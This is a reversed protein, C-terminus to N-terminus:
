GPGGPGAGPVPPPVPGEPISPINPNAEIGQSVQLNFQLQNGTRAAASDQASKLLQVSLTDLLPVSQQGKALTPDKPSIAATMFQHFRDPSLNTVFNQMMNSSAIYNVFADPNSNFANEINGSIVPPRKGAQEREILNAIVMKSVIVGAQQRDEMTFSAKTALSPSNGVPDLATALDAYLRSLPSVESASRNQALGSRMDYHRYMLAQLYGLANNDGGPRVVGGTANNDLRQFSNEENVQKSFAERNAERQDMVEKARADRSAVQQELAAGLSDTLAHISQAAQIRRIENRNETNAFHAEDWNDFDLQRGKYELYKESAERLSKTLENFTMAQEYTPPNGLERVGKRYAEMATQMDKFEQSGRLFLKASSMQDAIRDVCQTLSEQRVSYGDATFMKIKNGPLTVAIPQGFLLAQGSMSDTAIQNIGSVSLMSKVTVKSMDLSPDEKQLMGRVEGLMANAYLGHASEVKKCFVTFPTDSPFMEFQQEEGRASYMDILNHRGTDARDHLLPDLDFLAYYPSAMLDLRAKAASLIDMLPKYEQLTKLQEPTLNFRPTTYETDRGTFNGDADLESLKSGISPNNAGHILSDIELIKEYYPQLQGFVNLFQDDPMTLIDHTNIGQLRKCGEAVQDFMYKGLADPDNNKIQDLLFQNNEAAAQSGDREIFGGFPRDLARVLPDPKNYAYDLCMNIIINQARLMADTRQERVEPNRDHRTIRFDPYFNRITTELGEDTHGEALTYFSFLQEQAQDRTVGAYSATYLNEFRTGIYKLVGPPPERMLSQPNIPM